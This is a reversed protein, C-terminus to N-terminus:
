SRQVICDTGSNPSEFLPTLGTKGPVTQIQEHLLHEHRYVYITEYRHLNQQDDIYQLKTLRRGNSLLQLHQHEM